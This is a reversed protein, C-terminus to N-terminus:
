RDSTNGKSTERRRDDNEEKFQAKTKYFPCKPLADLLIRCNGYLNGFCEDRTCAPYETPEYKM